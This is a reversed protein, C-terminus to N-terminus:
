DQVTIKSSNKDLVENIKFLFVNAYMKIKDKVGICGATNSFRTFHTNYGTSKAKKQSGDENLVPNGQKDYVPLNQYASTRLQFRGYKDAETKGNADKNKTDSIKIETIDWNGNPFQTWYTGDSNDQKLYNVNADHPQSSDSNAVVHTTIDSQFKILSYGYLSFETTMVQESKDVILELKRGDPDVYKVSNNGAYHYLNLNQSNCRANKPLSFVSSTTHFSM